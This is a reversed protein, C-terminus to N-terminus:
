DKILTNNQEYYMLKKDKNPLIIERIYKLGLKQLLGQSDINDKTTIACIKKLRFTHFGAELIKQASEFGYGQKEYEPLFAFGLDINELEQREYLGCSGIKAGDSKRTVTYNSYGLEVQQPRIKEEIYTIADTLNNINRDGIYKLWKPSNLLAFMFEADDTTTPKIILRPTEFDKYPKM